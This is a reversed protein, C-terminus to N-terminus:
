LAQVRDSATRILIYALEIAFILAIVWDFARRQLLAPTLKRFLWLRPAPRPSPRRPAPVTAPTESARAALEERTPPLGLNAEIDRRLHDRVTGRDAVIEEILGQDLPVLV